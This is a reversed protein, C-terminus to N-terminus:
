QDSLSKLRSQVEAQVSECDETVNTTDIYILQNITPIDRIRYCGGLAGKSPNKYFCQTWETISSLNVPCLRRWIKLVLHSDVALVFLAKKLVYRSRYPMKSTSMCTESCTNWESWQYMCPLENESIKVVFNSAILARVRPDRMIQKYMYHSFSLSYSAIDEELDTVDSLQETLYGEKIEPEEDLTKQENEEQSPLVANDNSLASKRVYGHLIRVNLLKQGDELFQTIAGALSGNTSNFQRVTEDAATSENMFSFKLQITAVNQDEIVDKMGIHLENYRQSKEWDTQGICLPM